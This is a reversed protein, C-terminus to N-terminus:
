PNIEAALVTLDDVHPRNGVFEGVAGLLEDLLGLGRARSRTVTEVVRQSGFFSGDSSRAEIIGDTYLLLREGSALSVTDASWAVDVFGSSILPGTPPLANPTGGPAWVIAPPHGANVYEIRPGDTEVRACLLTVFRGPEFSGISEVVRRLVAMPEYDDKQAAQFASKVIGTMMAASAGHGSVDAVLVAVRGEGAAAYDYLDGGLEACAEYRASIRVGALEAQGPPLLSRQFRRAEALERELRAVHQQKEDRLARLELCREVLTQLVEREFPKQIFYFAGERIARVLHADADTVSGTMFIVDLGPRAAVLRKALEFGDMVPMRIDLIALDPDFSEIRDLAERPAAATTVEHRRGLVREVARIMGADDDVVLIRARRTM